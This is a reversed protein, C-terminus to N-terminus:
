ISIIVDEPLRLNQVVDSHCYKTPFVAPREFVVLNALANKPSSAPYSLVVPKQFVATPSEANISQLIPNWVSSKFRSSSTSGTRISGFYM